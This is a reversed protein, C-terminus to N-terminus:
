ARETSPTLLRITPIPWISSSAPLHWSGLIKSGGLDILREPSVLHGDGDLGLTAVGISHRTAAKIFIRTLTLVVCWPSRHSLHQM